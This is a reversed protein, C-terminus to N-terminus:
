GKVNSGNALNLLVCELALSEKENDLEGVVKGFLIDNFMYYALILNKTNSIYGSYYKQDDEPKLGDFYQEYISKQFRYLKKPHKKPM